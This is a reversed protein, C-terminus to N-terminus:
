FAIQHPYVIGDHFLSLASERTHVGDGLLLDLAREYPLSDLPDNELSDTHRHSRAFAVCKWFADLRDEGFVQIENLADFTSVVESPAIYRFVEAWVETPLERLSM